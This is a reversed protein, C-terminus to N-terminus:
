FPLVMNVIKDFAEQEVALVDEISQIQYPRHNAMLEMLLKPIEIWRIEEKLFLDVLLENAKNMFCPMSKGCELADIGIKLCPFKVHDVPMFDWRHTLDFAFPVHERPNRLPEFLAVHIPLLMSPKSAQALLSGDVLEVFSHIVSQPHITVAIKDKPHNFLFHAEILELAKNMLTSSDISIKKGMSWTPHNLAQKPTIKEMQDLTYNLFPGGSATLIIRSVSEKKEGKLCQYIANHESDIPIIPQNMKLSLDMILEGAAVLVEKTALAIKKNSKLGAITPTIALSSSIAVVLIDAEMNALEILGEMKQLHPVSLQDDGNYIAIKKPQFEQVQSLFLPSPNQCALGAVQFHEPNQRIVELTQVGISGTSGLIVVKKM